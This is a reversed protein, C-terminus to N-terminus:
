LWAPLINAKLNNTITPRQSGIRNETHSEQIYLNWIRCATMLDEGVRVGISTYSLCCNRYAIIRGRDFDYMLQDINRRRLHHMVVNKKVLCCREFAIQMHFVQKVVENYLRM